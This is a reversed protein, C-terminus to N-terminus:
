SYYILMLVSTLFLSLVVVRCGTRTVTKLEFGLGMDWLLHRIGNLAHFHLSFVICWQWLSGGICHWVHLFADWYDEGLAFMFFGACFAGIGFVLGVGTFRHLISLVSTIQLRYISLHPSLPRKNM